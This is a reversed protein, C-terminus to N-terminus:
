DVYSDLNALDKTFPDSHPFGLHYCWLKDHGGISQYKNWAMLIMIKQIRNKNVCKLTIPVGFGQVGGFWGRNDLCVYQM